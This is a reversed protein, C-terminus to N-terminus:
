QRARQHAAATLVCSHLRELLADRLAYLEVLRTLAEAKRGQLSLEHLECGLEHVRRHLADIAQFAPLSRIPGERNLWVGFRCHHQDLTPPASREDQLYAEVGTIWARHEVAAFLLPLDDRSIAPLNSWAPETKWTRVWAPLDAAPMPRAIGYGQALECGLQLLMVGHAVTEVGEAIVQRRFASALGLVGELIALDEPDELMNRVFSQDIKLQEAPLRRLYTLSSYGTGFDDLAFKVGIERCAHMVKSVQVIDELASTELVELELSEPQIRPHAALLAQLRAGFDPQQLQRASVNVSVPIDLGADLWTEMQALATAIVWEGVGIALAHEEIVPLFRAPLLLGQEPHQWRILAEVGIIRGSRMNVKPQYHLTFELAALAQRIRELSEHHGRVNRDQDADFIHYRNKGALKAQYMASDAQRLMQDADMEEGQPYFSVGISVSVQLMCEGVHVPEQAAALLRTLMIASAEISVLDAMVAVFEDGGLRAFTDGERLALQLRSALVILLQDGIAHGHHDNIAKFGDLDLYAVALHLTHRRAQAMAQHLRDALLVRNPLGTLADYHAIHELQREHEKQLTIDSFMSVYQQAHGQDDLVASITQMAAFVSGDKRRNWTEGYWYGKETLDRRMAEFYALDHHGSNLLRPNLGLVENRAYGTIESFAANVEIIDGDAATILIGERAHSFVSAALQLKAETARRDSVDIFGWLSVGREHDLITGSIEVWIHRGDQRVHEIRARYVGGASLVPYAAAGFAEHAAESPYHQRTPTGILKGPGYGLMLEFAPNAWVVTRDCVKVIGILENELMMKQEALLREMHAQNEALALYARQRADMSRQLSRSLLTLLMALLVLFAVTIWVQGYWPALYDEEALGVMLYLPYDGVQLYSYTRWIGDTTSRGRYTAARIGQDWLTRFQPSGIRLGLAGGPGIAEPQRIFINRQADFLLITAHPGARLTAFLGTFYAVPINAYVVGAFRGDSSEMRRTLPLIWQGSMRAVTPATIALTPTAVAAIYRERDAIRVPKDPAIGEGYRIQGNVDTARLSLISPLYGHLTELFSSYAAVRAQGCTADRRYEQAAVLLALDAEHISTFVSRELLGAQSAVYNEAEHQLSTRSHWLSYGALALILAIAIGMGLMLRGSMAQTQEARMGDPRSMNHLRPSPLPYTFM